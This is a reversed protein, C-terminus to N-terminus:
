KKKPKPADVVKSLPHATVWVDVVDGTQPKGDKVFSFSSSERFTARDGLNQTRSDSYALNISEVGFAELKSVEEPTSKGDGNKDNWLALQKYIKDAKDIKGDKNKDHVKLAEFGNPYKESSGFLQDAKTIQGKGKKDLVLWYGSANAEPWNIWKIGEYLPFDSVGSFSPRKKDTFLMLPSYYGGCFGKSGPFRADITIVSYCSGEAATARELNTRVTETVGTNEGSYGYLRGKTQTFVANVVPVKEGAAL